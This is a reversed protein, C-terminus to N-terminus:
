RTSAWAPRRHPMGNETKQQELDQRRIEVQRSVLALSDSIREIHAMLMAKKEELRQLERQLELYKPQLEVADELEQETPKKNGSEAALRIQERRTETAIQKIASKFGPIKAKVRALVDAAYGSWRNLQAYTTTYEKPDLTTLVEATIDPCGFPPQTQPKFGLEAVEKEVADFTSWFEYIEEHRKEGVGVNAPLKLGPM